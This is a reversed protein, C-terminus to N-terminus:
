TPTDYLLKLRYLMPRSPVADTEIEPCQLNCLYKGDVIKDNIFVMETITKRTNSNQSLIKENPAINWFLRHNSLLGDDFMKDVSPFDVLLHKVQREVLYEMADNSFFPPYNLKNYTTTKKNENNKNNALTRIVLGELQQNSFENLKNELKARTIVLNNPDIDPIYGDSVNKGIEPEISILVSPFITNEITKYVPILQDIIHSVSETHTGNCHPIIELINVNCSGGRTTDGIYDGIELTRSTCKPAGFHNPQKDNPKLTIAISQGQSLNAGYCRNDIQLEIDM